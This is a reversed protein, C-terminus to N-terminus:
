DEGKLNIVKNGNVIQGILDGALDAARRLAEDRLHAYRMTMGPSRHTLLKQLTYLDVQGSSALMSAYVHRLGHLARFDKPLGAAKKIRTVQKNIDTRQNGGRGPFVYPSGTRLHNILLDRAAQNLPIKQDVGGKPNRIHIFGRDFDVDQWQLRFLEGRRMGTYLAMKMFNAAMINQDQEIAELLATLQDPSLDETKLNNVRPMEIIFSPVPCLHKKAAFNVLRRLLELVNKVTGPKRVKLLKLRLRDVDFPTLTHPERDGLVPKIHNQYRNEDTVLGKLGPKRNRYEQWLRDVTWREAEAKKAAERQERAERRSPSKGEIKETRIHSARAPTMDDKFQRGAKEEILKGNKRYMIYYIREPRGDSAKGMVFHVGPYNTKIRQLSPM